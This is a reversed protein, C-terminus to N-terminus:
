RVERLLVVTKGSQYVIPLDYIDDPIDRVKRLGAPYGADYYLILENHEINWTSLFVYCDGDPVEWLTYPVHITTVSVVDEAYCLRPIREIHGQLLRKTNVDTLISISQDSENALWEACAVDDKNYADIIGTREGSLALSYPMDVKDLINSQTAEFVLGSTFVFYVLLVTPAFWKKNWVLECGLIFLPALFFLSLHYFRTMNVLRSFHPIFVCAGLLVFGALICAAFETTFNYDERRRWLQILGLIILIQTAYQIVRFIKGEISASM